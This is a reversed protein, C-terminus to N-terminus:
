VSRARELHPHRAGRVVRRQGPHQAAHLFRLGRPRGALIEDLRERADVGRRHHRGREQHRHHRRQGAHSGHAFPAVPREDQQHDRAGAREDDGRRDGDDGRESGGGPGSHQDLSAGVELLDAPDALDDEVLRPRQGAALGVDGVDEREVAAIGGLDDPERRRHLSAARMRHAFREDGVRPAEPQAHLRRGVDGDSGAAAHAAADPFARHQHSAMAPEVLLRQAVVAEVGVEKAEFSPLVTTSTATSPGGARITPTIATPSTTRGSAAEATAASRSRPTSDDISVPSLSRVARTIAAWAPIRIQPAGIEQGLSLTSRNRSLRRADPRTAM